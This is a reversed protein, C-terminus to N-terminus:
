PKQPPPAVPPAAQADCAPEHPAGLDVKVLIWPGSDLNVTM